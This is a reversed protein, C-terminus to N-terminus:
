YLTNYDNYVFLTQGVAKIIIMIVFSIIIQMCMVRYLIIMLMFMLMYDFRKKRYLAIGQSYDIGNCTTM